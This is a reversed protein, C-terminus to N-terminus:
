ESFSNIMYDETEEPFILGAETHKADQQGQIKIILFLISGSTVPSYALKNPTNRQLHISELSTLQLSTAHTM